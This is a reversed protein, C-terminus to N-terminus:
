IDQGRRCLTPLGSRDRDDGDRQVFAGFVVYGQRELEEQMDDPWYDRDGTVIDPNRGAAAVVAKNEELPRECGSVVSILTGDPLETEVEGSLSGEYPEWSLGGNESSLTITEAVEDAGFDSMYTGQERRAGIRVVLKEGELKWIRRGIGARYEDRDYLVSDWKWAM